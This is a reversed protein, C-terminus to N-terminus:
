HYIIYNDIIILKDYNLKHFKTPIIKDYRYSSNIINIKIKIEDKPNKLVSM